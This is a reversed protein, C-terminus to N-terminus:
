TTDQPSIPMELGIGNLFARTLRELHSASEELGRILGDQRYLAHCSVILSSQEGRERYANFIVNWGEETNEVELNVGLHQVPNGFDDLNFQATTGAVEAIHSSASEVKRDLLLFLTPRLVVADVQLNPLASRVAQESLSICNECLTFDGDNQLNRFNVSLKDATVDILGLGNFLDVQVHVDSLSNGGLVRMDAAIIPFQPNINEYLSKLLEAGLAPLDFSLASFIAEYTLDARRFIAEM